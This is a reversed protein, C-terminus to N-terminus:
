IDEKVFVGLVRVSQGFDDSGSTGEREVEFNLWDGAAITGSPTVSSFTVVGVDEDNSVCTVTQSQASGYSTDMGTSAIDRGQARVNLVVDKTDDASTATWYVVYILSNGHYNETIKTMWGFQTDIGQPAQLYAYNNSSGSTTALTYNSSGNHAMRPGFWHEFGARVLVDGDTDGSPDSTGLRLDGRNSIHLRRQTGDNGALSLAGPEGSSGDWATVVGQTSGDSGASVSLGNMEGTRSNISWTQTSSGDGYYGKITADGTTNTARFFRVDASGTGDQPSANIDVVSGGSAPRSDLKLGTDDVIFYGNAGSRVIRMSTDSGGELRLETDDLKTYTAEDSFTASDITLSGALELDGNTTIAALLNAAADEIELDTSTSDFGVEFDNDAGFAIGGDDPLLVKDSFAM